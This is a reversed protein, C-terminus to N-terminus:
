KRIIIQYNELIKNNLNNSTQSLFHDAKAKRIKVTCVNRLQRFVLWDFDQKSKRARAWALNRKHLLDSLDPKFWANNCDKVRYKKLPAHKNIISNFGEYFFDWAYEVDAILNIKEWDFYFLDHFFGQESFHKLYIKVLIRPKSKPIKTNRVTAVVCHDSIDNAFISSYILLLISTPSM